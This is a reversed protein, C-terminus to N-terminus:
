NFPYIPAGCHIIDALQTCQPAPIQPTICGTERNCWSKSDLPLLETHQCMSYGPFTPLPEIAATWHVSVHQLRPLYTPTGRYTTCDRNNHSSPSRSLQLNVMQHLGQLAEWPPMVTCVYTCVCVCVRVCACVCVCVRVCACVCVCVCVCVRVCVCVCVYM